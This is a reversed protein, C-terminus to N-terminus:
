SSPYPDYSGGLDAVLRTVESPEWTEPAYEFLPAKDLISGVKKWAAEAADERVFLMKDGRMADTLLHQYAGLEANKGKTVASLEVPM